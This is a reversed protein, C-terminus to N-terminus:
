VKWAAGQKWRESRRGRQYLQGLNKDSNLKPHETLEEACGHHSNKDRQAFSGIRLHPADHLTCGGLVGKHRATVVIVGKENGHHISTNRHLPFPETAKRRRQWRSEKVVTRCRSHRPSTRPEIEERIPGGMACALNNPKQIGGRNQSSTLRQRCTKCFQALKADTNLPACKKSGSDYM